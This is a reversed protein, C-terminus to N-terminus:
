KTVFVDNVAVVYINNVGKAKFQDYSNIYGPVQASCPATFAGPVGVQLVCVLHCRTLASEFRVPLSSIRVIINKGTLKGEFTFGQEPNDEKISVSTPITSGVKVQAASLLSAAASHAAETASALISAM